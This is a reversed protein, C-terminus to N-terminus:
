EYRLSEIPDLSAAKYAPIIGSILAVVFTLLLGAIIWFWPIIFPSDTFYSITNGVMIGAIVGLVGGIQAIVVAEALFQDRITKRTAGLAKRIGIERTRETVSVLMINMLGIGAGFLTILGIFTAGVQIQVTLGILMSAINDSKSIAFSEDDKLNDKRIKRFLGTAEGIAAEMLDGDTVLVSITYNMKPRSFYVRVNSVPMLCSKDGSFGISSGREALVGVIKYKGAGVSIVEGVPNLKNPFLKGAVESGIVVVHANNEVDMKTINRGLAIEQGASAIYNEDAGMVQINPDTKISGHKLTAIGTGRTFVSVKAPFHFQDKFDLAQQYSIPEFSRAKNRHGGIQVRLERSQINFTNSGMMSFNENLFYKMADIATLIGVLAMIGFAIIMVTLITRLLHGKISQMSIKINEYVLRSNAM